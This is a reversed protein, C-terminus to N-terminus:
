QLNINKGSVDCSAEEGSILAMEPGNNASRAQELKVMAARQDASSLDRLSSVDRPKWGGSAM